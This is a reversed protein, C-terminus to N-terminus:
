ENDSDDDDNKRIQKKEDRQDKDRGDLYDAISKLRAQVRGHVSEKPFTGRVSRRGATVGTLLELGEDITNVAWIHFRKKKCAEVVDERLMLHKINTVPILVGQDGTLGRAQCVDFFGEIKYQVGGIPMVHGRQDVAGTVAISQKIPLNALSSLLAYLEASTASDGDVDSYNQEFSISAALTLPRDTAYQGGLYGELILVGKNYIRGSLHAEREISILGNRGVYTRVSIRSPQGFEYEGIEVVSLGNIQGVVAGSTQINLTGDTIMQRTEEEALSSRYRAENLAQRVDDATVRPRYNSDAWHAAEIIVDTIAGFRTSLKTQDEALRSGYEIIQAVAGADFPPLQHEVCRARIFQAYAHENKPLRAMTSAFDARVKFLQQFDEDQEYVDYYVRHSGMLIVKVNLPIPESELTRTSFMQLQTGPDEIEIQRNSLARKLAEWANADKLVDQARMILYGGNARHLAGPRLMTFDLVQDGFRLDREIRGILNMFTPNTEVIVPVGQTRSHDVIVNVEFRIMSDPEAVQDGAPSGSQDEPKSRFEDVHDLIDRQVETLYDAAEASDARYRDILEDLAHAIVRTATQRDLAHLQERLTQDIAHVSRLTAALTAAMEPQARALAEQRDLPLATLKQPTLPKGAKGAPAVFLGQDSRALLFGAPTLIAELQDFLQARAEDAMRTIKSTAQQYEAADFTASLDKKLLNMVALMEQKFRQARGPPLSMARPRLPDSFNHVYVWDDPTPQTAAHKKLFRAVTSMRGTGSAGTVFVNFGLGRVDMGFDIARVARPQGFIHDVVSLEDTTKFKLRHPDAVRRLKSFPLPKIKM